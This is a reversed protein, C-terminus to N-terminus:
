AAVAEHRASVSLIARATVERVSQREAIRAVSNRHVGALGAIERATMGAQELRRVHAIVKRAPVMEGGGRFKRMAATAAQRCPLCRCGHYQYATSTGHRPGTRQGPVPVGMVAAEVQATVTSRTGRLIGYITVPSTGAAAAIDDVTLGRERLRRVRQQVPGVPRRRGRGQRALYEGHKRYRTAGDRCTDCGCGHVKYTHFSGHPRPRACDCDHAIGRIIPPYTTTRTM